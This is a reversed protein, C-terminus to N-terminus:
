SIALDDIDKKTLVENEHLFSILARAKQLVNDKLVPCDSIAKRIKIGSYFIILCNRAIELAYVRLLSPRKLGYSKMAPMREKEFGELIAFHSSLAPSKGEISNDILNEFTEELEVAEEVVRQSYAEVEDRNLCLERVYYQDIEWKYLNFFETVKELDGFEEFIRNYEDFEANLYKVAYLFGKEIVVIEM